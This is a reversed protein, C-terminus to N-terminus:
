ANVNELNAYVSNAWTGGCVESIFNDGADGTCVLDCEGEGLAAFDTNFADNQETGSCWCEDAYQTGFYASGVCLGACVESTMAPSTYSAGTLVRDPADVFCGLYTFINPPAGGTSSTTTVPPTSGPPTTVPPTTVPPTTGPPTTVPPTTVPPTTGPPITVPPTTVPASTVVDGIEYVNMASNGGCFEGDLAGSCAMNCNTSSGHRAFDTTSTGCFCETAFQVGAYTAGDITACYSACIQSSMKKEGDPCVPAQIELARDDVVDAVCGLSELEPTGEVQDLCTQSCFDGCPLRYISYDTTIVMIEGNNDEAFGIVSVSGDSVITGVTWDGGEQFLYYVNNNTNDGFVYAGGILDAFYTGRYVYGGIVANGTLMRTGCIDVGGTFEEEGDADSYYDPHCYEFVPFTFGSRDAGACPGDRNENDEFCRSGEFRSWGYNNGCEIIDIEEVLIHGVDGCWLDDTARDFGCRWPNRFGTACIEPLAPSGLNGSPITYGTGDSPVSIRIISALMNSTDQGTNLPDEQPGGDGTSWYLDHSAANNGYDSPKFGCWGGSHISSFKTATTILVEESALTAAPDGAVYEFKSLRNRRNDGDAAQLITYSVYFYSPFGSVGFLPGFAFDLLGEEYNLYFDGGSIDLVTSASGPNDADVSKIEGAQGGFWYMSDDPSQHVSVTQAPFDGESLDPFADSLGPEFIEPEEYPYSWFMDDGGGTHKDCYSEGDYTPFVIQGDCAAVLEECFSSKMTMGDEVGLESGLVEYLHGSYSHCQGCVVQKYLDECDGTLPGAADFRAEVAAEELDTCCAGAQPEPCFTLVEDYDTPKEDVYCLPHAYTVAATANLVRDEDDAFCGLYTIGSRAPYDTTTVPPLTEPPTTGPPITCPPTTVPLTAVPPTTGPPITGPPTTVPPTTLFGYVEIALDGGCLEGDVAGSCPMNCNTSSGHRDFDATATGCYCETSYEVGAYIAGDITACRSACIAASMDDKGEPCEISPLNLARDGWVDTFCGLPELQLVAESQDLCTSSIKGPPTTVPPTTEPPTTGPPITGPPTTVPPTTLFGYVEIALDGGCLEGDVAGSCPMNCNTSSGHRDFDATATGCYCETSYEVGAYIAGDITACRSACIAASMDDKGEPCEISPLNLARDGWVDTFCGLPELQLVAESQDLCTSSIKGPPTTVPPTTEPPTTGPPITGPPTTVPPTTLFGYVEIALDGGCLEGDVAGSCPMNCNTSSGHRDFDATATGCYCETSYEVGAYIAGDITACRSACIAASMKQEGEPCAISGEEGNLARDGWVDTFCGLRELQPVAEAQALCTSGCFEGCPLHYIKYDQTILVLEGNIDEAFGIVNVSGDSVITGVTWEGGEQFLYYLNDSTNDGFVYAGGILDAFYTGRYVYGGIVSNGTIVSRSGCIDVGNTFPQERDTDSYYDPHCYEFVPFTFDSRDAGDCPGDRYEQAEQCRSGEFRSWGYNNGCEIINIEEINTHGVDGCWLDDTARDFGCRWPNRLGSACIEPLAPTALNGSPITYGSGDPPVSIRIMAGLLNSTDQGANLPDEQPGGDGTSWYLDHSAAYNGYDSPKFGCWGASHIAPSKTATTVLVEVSTLTASPDEAFYEFKSLRQRRNEGDDGLLITYSVYFYDPYGSVGFMPGFAFDMLGEEYALFLDLEEIDVVTDTDNPDDADVSKIEGAQGGFWWMSGDPSQKLSVTQGPFDGDSLDPFVKTLGSEFIEPEEYPYSWFLDDGGGTHKDCYSEGDYTPFVIQGDCAAVLEECFSSKMTMGDEVGLEPGLREFLHGSYSHCQGCVVQTFLDACDGKLPGVSDFRAKVVEEELDTCCAGDQPEPCFTVVSMADYGGCIEPANGPCEMDCVAEGKEAYDTGAAGCWCEVGYQTAYYAYGTCEAQCIEASMEVSEMVVAVFVRDGREDGFCGLYGAEETPDVPGVPDVPDVPDVPETVDDNLYVSMRDYGGCDEDSDGTCAMICEGVAEGYVTYDSGAEGCWCEEAYQTGYLPYASCAEKCVAATMDSSDLIAAVDFIRAGRADIWCGLYGTSPEVPDLDPNKYVSMAYKGGCTEGPFGLCAENCEGEGHQDYDDTMGCWCEYGYQTGYFASNSCLGSCIEANLPVGPGSTEALVMIREDGNKDAYCGVYNADSPVAPDVPDAPAGPIVPDPDEPDEPEVPDVDDPDPVIPDVPPEEEPSPQSLMFVEMAKSGGCTEEPYASCPMNCNDASGYQGFYDETGAEGVETGGCFCESAYQVGMYKMGPITACYSACIEASMATEGTECKPAQVPLARANKDDVFCGESEFVPLTESQDLCTTACLDGCPMHYINYSGDIIMLEGNIDQAFAIVKVSGDTIIGGVSVVGDDGKKLYYVNKNTNDGFVYAGDLLESFYNGRYVYGGIVAHGILNRDGCLDYGGTNEDDGVSSYDPHCYEYYPFEFGSRTADKCPGDRYEMAEQCYSGEFRSWGYNKGCEVIDIEEVNTHGVDGCYLDDNATDFGCRWPNRFGSACIPGAINSSPIDYPQAEDDDSDDSSVVIRIIAGLLNTTDQSHNNPDTQPGGDGTAWYLENKSSPSNFASPKFDVWGAAHIGTPKEMTTILIVESALTDSASGKKYFKSLRNRPKEGALQITYSLYFAGTDHYNPDFCFDLLGEEYEVYVFSGIDVITNGGEREVADVEVIKGDQGMLWFKSGDPTAKVSIMKSPKDADPFANNLGPEFVEAETYPYSWFLDEDQTGTHKECYDLDGYTPFVINGKGDCKDVLDDCFKKTMTLGDVVDLENILRAYLHGSYSHCQGCIVQKYFVACDDGIDGAELFRTEIEAEDVANCCAGDDQADCFTLEMELNTPTDDYCLPHGAVRSAAALFLALCGGRSRMM